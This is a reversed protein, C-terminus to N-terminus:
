MLFDFNPFNRFIFDDKLSEHGVSFLKRLIFFIEESM